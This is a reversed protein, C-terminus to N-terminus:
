RPRIALRVAPGFHGRALQDIPNAQDLRALLACSRRASAPAPSRGRGRTDGARDSRPPTGDASEADPPASRGPEGGTAPRRDTWFPHGRLSRSSARAPRAANRCPPASWGGVILASRSARLGLFQSALLLFLDRAQAALQSADALSSACSAELLAGRVAQDGNLWSAMRRAARLSISRLRAADVLLFARRGRRGPLIPAAGPRSRPGCAALLDLAFSAVPSSSCCRRSPLRCCSNCRMSRAAAAQPSRCVRSRTLGDGLLFGGQFLALLLVLGVEHPEVADLRHDLLPLLRQFAPRQLDVALELMQLAVRAVQFFLGPLHVFPM